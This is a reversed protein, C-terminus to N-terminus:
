EGLHNTIASRTQFLVVIYWIVYVLSLILTACGFVLVLIGLGAMAGDGAAGATPGAAAAGVFSIIFMVVASAIALGGVMLLWIITQALGEEEMTIALARLLLLFVIPQAFLMLASVLTIISGAMAGVGAGGVRGAPTPSIAAAMGTGVLNVAFGGLYGLLGLVLLALSIIALTKANNRTPAALCFVNGTVQLGVYALATGVYLVGLLIIGIGATAAGAAAGSAPQKASTAMSAAAVGVVFAGCCLVLSMVIVGLEAIIVLTVGRRVKQWDGVTGAGKNRIRRKRPKLRKGRRVDEDDDGRRRRDGDDYDDDDSFDLEDRPRARPRDQVGQEDDRRDPPSREQGGEDDDDPRRPRPREQVADDDRRKRAGSREDEDRDDSRDRKSPRDEVIELDDEVPPRSQVSAKPRPEEEPEDQGAAAATFM